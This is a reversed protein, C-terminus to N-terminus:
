TRVLWLVRTLRSHTGAIACAFRGSNRTPNGFCAWIIETQEDTLAGEAVEWILDPIASAEDFILLLRKGKNHLGAFAETNNESWATMDVRWTKEHAPDASYLATATYTFWHRNIM